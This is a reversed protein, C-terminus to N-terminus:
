PGLALFAQDLDVRAAAGSAIARIHGTGDVLTQYPFAMVGLRQVLHRGPDAATRLGLGTADAPALGPGIPGSVIVLVREHDFSGADV